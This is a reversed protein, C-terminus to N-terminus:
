EAYSVRADAALNSETGSATTIGATAADGNLMEATMGLIEKEFKVLSKFIATYLANEGLFKTYAKEVVELVDDNANFATKHTRGTRWPPDDRSAEAMEHELADWDRGTEPFMRDM